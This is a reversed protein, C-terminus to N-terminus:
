INVRQLRSWNMSLHLFLQENYTSTQQLRVRQLPSGTYKYLCSGTENLDLTKHYRSAIKVVFTETGQLVHRVGDHLQHLVHRHWPFLNTIDLNKVVDGTSDCEDVLNGPHHLGYVYRLPPSYQPLNGPHHLGYVYRLPPSYQPLNGPHQLGYVYRLAPPYQPLTGPHHLGYVYCLPPSYNFIATDPPPEILAGTM